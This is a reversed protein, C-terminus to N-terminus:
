PRPDTLGKQPAMDKYLVLVTPVKMFLARALRLVFAGLADLLGRARVLCGRSDKLTTLEENAQSAEHQRAMSRFREMVENVLLIAERTGRCPLEGFQCKHMRSTIEPMHPQILGRSYAKGLHNLLNITRWGNRADRLNKGAKPLFVIDGDKYNQPTDGHRAVDTWLDALRGSCQWAVACKELM